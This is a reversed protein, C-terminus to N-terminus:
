VIKFRFDEKAMDTDRHSTTDPRVPSYAPHVLFRRKRAIQKAPTCAVTLGILAIVRPASRSRHRADDTEYLVRM